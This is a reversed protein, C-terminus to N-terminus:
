TYNHIIDRSIRRYNHMVDAIIESQTSQRFIRPRNTSGRILHGYERWQRLEFKAGIIRSQASFNFKLWLFLNVHNMKSVLLIMCKNLGKISIDCFVIKSYTYQGLDSERFYIFEYNENVHHKQKVLVVTWKNPNLWPNTHQNAWYKSLQIVLLIKINFNDILLNICHVFLKLLM